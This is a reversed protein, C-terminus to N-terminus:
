TWKIHGFKDLILEGGNYKLELVNYIGPAFGFEYEVDEFTFFLNLKDVNGRIEPSYDNFNALKGNSVALYFARNQTFAAEQILLITSQLKLQNIERANDM